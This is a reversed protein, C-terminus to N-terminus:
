RSNRQACPASAHGIETRFKWQIYLNRPLDKYSRVSSRFIRHDGEGTPGYLMERAHQDGIAADGAM